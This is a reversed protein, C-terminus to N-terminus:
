GLGLRKSQLSAFRGIAGLDARISEFEQWRPYSQKFTAESVRVDKTLYIRGGYDAVMADLEDLLDFLGPQHAFDLALTYGELPFSLPNDNAPGAVKLVALFSGMKSDAIRQLIRRLGVPGAAKPIVFQYQTFGAKGYIRNWDRVADLPYFFPAYHVRNSAKKRLTKAYFLADFANTTFPTVLSFPPTLPAFLKAPRHPELGGEASHEGVNLISRGLNKGSSICDIWAVSYTVDATEDYRALVEELNACKYVTQDILSSRIPQLRVTVALIVGTLGMGGCTARFAANNESPSCHIVSGDAKMLDFGTVHQSFCGAVHHNKGHVDSAVAGGLTVHRTGPTVPLFWGKPVFVRLIEDLSVGAQASLLGTAPDFGLFKDLRDSMLVQPALPSDGYSRGLGYPILSGGAKVTAAAGARDSPHSIDADIVPYLGWSTLQM